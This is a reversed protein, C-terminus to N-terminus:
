ETIHSIFIYKAIGNVVLFTNRTAPLFCLFAYHQDPFAMLKIMLWAFSAGFLLFPRCLCVFCVVLFCVLLLFSLAPLWVFLCVPAAVALGFSRFVLLRLVSVSVMGFAVGPIPLDDSQGAVIDSLRLEPTM